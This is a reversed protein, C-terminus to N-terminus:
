GMKVKTRNGQEGLRIRAGRTRTASAPSPLNAKRCKPRETEGVAMEFGNRKEKNPKELSAIIKTKM